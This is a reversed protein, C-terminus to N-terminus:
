LVWFRSARLFAAHRVLQTEGPDDKRDSAM